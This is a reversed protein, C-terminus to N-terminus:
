AEDYVRIEPPSALLPGLEGVIDNAFLDHDLYAIASEVSQFGHLVQVDDERILLHKSIAGDVTELFPQRYKSYVDAAARRDPPAISLTIELYAM